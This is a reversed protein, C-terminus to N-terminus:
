LALGIEIMFNATVRLAETTGYIKDAFDMNSPWMQKRLISYDPCHQLIHEATQSPAGCPCRSSEGIRFRAYMHQNLRNHGTRLRFVKVQEQRTLGHYGDQQINPRHLAKIITKVEKFTARTEPQEMEAGAKAQRDAEENGPIGCHAPIWQVVVRLCNISSLASHLHPLRGKDLAQIVSLADTLFVVQADPEVSCVLGSGVDEAIEKAAIILAEVEAKYNTCHNGTPEAISKSNGNQYQIYVGAGGNRVADSASGDTYVHTWAEQPFRNQIM